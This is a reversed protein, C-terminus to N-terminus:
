NAVEREDQAGPLPMAARSPAARVVLKVWLRFLDVYSALVSKPRFYQSRGYVRPFHRVPVEAFSFGGDQLKKLLEICLTGGHEVLEVSELVERRFLRFDCDIDRLQLGFAARVFRHYPSGILVRLLPDARRTRYGNVYDVNPTLAHLLRDLERPDFQADGDTYCVLEKGAAEFGSRLAAGYGRNEPHHIIRLEPVVDGLEDLIEGTSDQSGDNVVIIEYDETWARVTRRTALVM